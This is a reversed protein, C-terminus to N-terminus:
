RSSKDKSISSGVISLEVQPTPNSATKATAGDAGKPEPWVSSETKWEGPANELTTFYHAHLEAAGTKPIKLVLVSQTKPSRPKSGVRFLSLDPGSQADKTMAIFRNVDMPLPSMGLLETIRALRALSSAPVKQNAASTQPLIYHNTHVLIGTRTRQVSFHGNPLCEVFAIEKRDALVYHMPYGAFVEHHSLAEDVSSCKRVIWEAGLWGESSKFRKPFLALRESRPISAASIQGVFLGQDNIGSELRLTKGVFLGKFPFSGDEIVQSLSQESALDDRMLAVLVHGDASAQAGSAAWFTSAWAPTTLCASMLFTLFSRRLPM